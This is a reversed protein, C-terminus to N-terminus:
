RSAKTSERLHRNLFALTTVIFKEQSEKKEFSHGEGEFKIFTAEIKARRLADYMRQSQELPVLPDLTGHFILFPVTNGDVHFLPSADRYLAPAAEPTKGMFNVILDRVNLGEPTEFPFSRTLDTPGFMDVVCKVRSSYKALAPDSNDRTNRTGLLAVLHGGASAGLAGVRNPDVGYRAANARIWRVARQVDDLQAPYTNANPTVLRYNVSFCVYGSKALGRCADGFDRKDGGAWGGGHVFLVAPRTGQIGPPHYIDLLLKQGGAEGYVVDTEVRVENQPAAPPAAACSTLAALPVFLWFRKYHHGLVHM